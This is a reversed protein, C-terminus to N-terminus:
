VKAPPRLGGGLGWCLKFSSEVMVGFYKRWLRLIKKAPPALHHYTIIPSALHHHHYHRYTIITNPYM